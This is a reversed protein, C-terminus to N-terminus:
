CLLSSSLLQYTRRVTTNGEQCSAQAVFLADGRRPPFDTTFLLRDLNMIMLLAM